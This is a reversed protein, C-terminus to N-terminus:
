FAAAHGNLAGNVEIRRSHERSPVPAEPRTKGGIRFFSVSDQLKEAQAALEQSTASMEEAAAANQQIVKDLQQIATNIQVAGADQERCAASIELVLGATKKIDPVLKGLMDSAEQAVAVTQTSLAGIEQAAKQSREALKRVESAVVTFGTGHEGARAAEVAANLALLDTQRAIEQVINIKGAITEMAQMARDVSKGTQEASAASTRAIKETLSANEANQRVSAAMEKMASTAEEAASAQEAAGSAMEEATASLEQAGSSVQESAAQSGGAIFRLKEEMSQMARAMEGIEDRRGTGALEINLDGTAMKAIAEKLKLLPAVLSRGILWSLLAVCFAILAISWNIARTSAEAGALMRAKAERVSKQEDADFKEILPEAEAYLSSLRRVAEAREKIIAVLSDFNREYAALKEEINAKAEAPAWAAQSRFSEAMEKWKNVSKADIRAIFNKEHRRMQVLSVELQPMKLGEIASEAERASAIIAALLGRSEDLGEKHLLGAVKQFQKRYEAAIGSLTEIGARASETELDTLTKIDADLKAMAGAHKDLHKEERRLLFDKEHRRGQLLDAKISAVRALISNQVELERNVGALKESGAYHLLGIVLVGLVGAVGIAGTQGAIGLRSLMGGSAGLAASRPEVSSRM